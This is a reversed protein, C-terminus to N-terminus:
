ARKRRSSAQGAKRVQALAREFAMMEKLRETPSLTLRRLTLTLDIGFEKAARVASGKPPALIYALKREHELPTMSGM